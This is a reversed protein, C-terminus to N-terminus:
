SFAGGVEAQFGWKSKSGGHGNFSGGFGLEAGFGGADFGGAGSGSAGAGFSGAGALRMDSMGMGASSWQSAQLQAFLQDMNPNTPFGSFGPDSVFGGGFAFGPGPSFGPGAPFGPGPGPVVPGANGNSHRKSGSANQGIDPTPFNMSADTMSTFSSEASDPSGDPFDVFSNNSSSSDSANDSDSDSDSDSNDDTDDEPKDDTDDEPKDDAEDDARSHKSKQKPKSKHEASPKSSRSLPDPFFSLMEEVQVQVGSEFVERPSGRPSTQSHPHTHKRDHKRDHKRSHKKSKKKRHENPLDRARQEMAQEGAGEAALTEEWAGEAMTQQMERETALAREQELKQAEHKKSQEARADSLSKDFTRRAQDVVFIQESLLKATKDKRLMGKFGTPRDALCRDVEEIIQDLTSQVVGISKELAEQSVLGEVARTKVSQALGTAREALRKAATREKDKHLDEVTKAIIKATDLLNNVIHEIAKAFMQTDSHATSGAEITSSSGSAPSSSSSREGNDLATAGSLSHSRGHSSMSRAPSHSM